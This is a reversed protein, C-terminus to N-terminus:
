CIFFLQAEFTWCYKDNRVKVNVPSFFIATLCAGWLGGCKDRELKILSSHSLWNEMRCLIKVVIGIVLTYLFNLNGKAVGDNSSKDTKPNQAPTSSASIAYSAAHLISSSLWLSQM